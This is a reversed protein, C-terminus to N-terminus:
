ILTGGSPIMQTNGPSKPYKSVGQWGGAERGTERLQSYRDATLM